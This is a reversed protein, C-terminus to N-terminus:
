GSGNTPAGVGYAHPLKSTETQLVAILPRTYSPILKHQKDHARCSCSARARSKESHNWVHTTLPTLGRQRVLRPSRNRTTGIPTQASGSAVIWRLANRCTRGLVYIVILLRRLGHHHALAAGPLSDFLPHCCILRTEIRETSVFLSLYPPNWIVSLM